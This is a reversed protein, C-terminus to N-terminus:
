NMGLISSLASTKSNMKEMASEMKAFKDYWKDEYNSVREEERKIDETYQDYEKQLAKDDYMSYVSRYESSQMQKSMTTYTAGVLQKFFSRVTDLDDSLATRLRDKGSATHTDDKDGDIHFAYKENDAAEFYSLTNIGFSSLSFKQGGIDFSEAMGNRLTEMATRLDEDRRLLGDKIKGEWKEVEEDTMSDKQEETLIDYDKANEANYLKAMENILENYEKFFGKISDYISDVDTETSVNTTTYVRKDANEETDEAGDKMVYDSVKTATISLGNINFMNTKSTFSVGNLEIEADSGEIVKGATEKTIGLNKLFGDNEAADKSWEDGDKVEFSFQNDAGSEKSSLFFRQTKEDYSANIGAKSFENAVQSLTMQSNITVETGPDDKGKKIRYTRDGFDEDMYAAALTANSSGELQKGTVYSSKALKKVALTQVGNVANGDASVQAISSDVINAKKKNFFADYKMEGLKTNYFNYIKSNLTKWSEQKWELKTQNNKLKTKKYSQADVLQQVISQTDMGSAMGTMRLRDSM